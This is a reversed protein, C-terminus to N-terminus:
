SNFKKVASERSQALRRAENRAIMQEIAYKRAKSANYGAGGGPTPPKGASADKWGQINDRISRTTQKTAGGALKGAGFAAAGIGMAALGQMSVTASAGALAAALKASIYVLIAACVGALCVQAGLEVIASNDAVRTAKDLVLNLYTVVIRLSLASFLITLIAAFINQLWNNFMPRLFGYILCFIFVPATISLLLITVEAVMSVFATVIMLVFVGLWVYFQATMGEDKIYTSDDMDHLTKGLVKAKNWLSDLLQWISDSGSFGEKLGNIADIVGDLYGEANAVFSLIIAMRMIDWVVDEMPTSLKGALTQYGRWTIYLTASMAALGMMMSSYSMMLGKTADTIGGILYKDVGVFLGASM